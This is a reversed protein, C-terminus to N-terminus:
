CYICYDMRLLLTRVVEEGEATKVLEEPKEQNLGMNPKSFWIEAALSSGLVQAALDLVSVPDSEM